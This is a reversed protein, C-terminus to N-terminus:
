CGKQLDPLLKIFDKYEAIYFEDSTIGFAKKFALKWDTTTRLNTYFNLMAEHGGYSAILNAVSIAGYGYQKFSSDTVIGDPGHEVYVMQEKLKEASTINGYDKVMCSFGGLHKSIHLKIDSSHQSAVWWGYYTATGENLWSPILGVRSYDTVHGTRDGSVTFLVSHTYEHALLELRDWDTKDSWTCSISSWENGGNGNECRDGYLGTFNKDIKNIEPSGAWQKDLESTVIAYYYNPAYFRSFVSGIDSYVEKANKVIIPDLHPGFKINELPFRYSDSFLHKNVDQFSAILVSYDAVQKASVTPSSTPTAKPTSTPLDVWRYLIGFKKCVQNNKILNVQKSSCPKIIASNAPATCGSLLATVIAIGLLKRM